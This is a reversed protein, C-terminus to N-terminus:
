IRKLLFRSYFNCNGRFLRRKLFTFCVVYISLNSIKHPQRVKIKPDQERGSWGVNTPCHSPCSLAPLLIAIAKVGSPSYWKDTLSFWRMPEDSLLGRCYWIRVEERLRASTISKSFLVSRIWPYWDIIWASKRETVSRAQQVFSQCIQWFLFIVTRVTFYKRACFILTRLTFM